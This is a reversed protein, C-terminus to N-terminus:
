DKGINKGEIRALQGSEQLFVALGAVLAMLVLVATAYERWLSLRASQAVSDGSDILFSYKDM